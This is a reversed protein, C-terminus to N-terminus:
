TGAPRVVVSDGIEQWARNFRQFFQNVGCQFPQTIGKCQRDRKSTKRLAPELGVDPHREMTETLVYAGLKRPRPTGVHDPVGIKLFKGSSKFISVWFLVHPQPSEGIVEAQCASM